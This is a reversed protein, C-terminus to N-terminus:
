RSDGGRDAVVAIGATVFAVAVDLLHEIEAPTLTGGQLMRTEAMREVTDFAAVFSGATLRAALEQAPGLEAELAAAIVDEIERYLQLRRAAVAHAERGLRRQLLLEPELWGTLERLWDRVIAVTSRAGSRERLMADLREVAISADGHVIEEKTPFYTFVTARSVDAAAAIDDVTTGAFGHEAFLRMAAERIAIRTALKKRERLGAM